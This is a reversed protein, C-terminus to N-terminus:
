KKFTNIANNIESEINDKVTEFDWVSLNMKLANKPSKLLEQVNGITKEKEDNSVYIPHKLDDGAERFLTYMESQNLFDKFEDVLQYLPKDLVRQIGNRPIGDFVTTKYHQLQQKLLVIYLKAFLEYDNIQNKEKEEIYDSITNFAEIDTENIPFPNKNGNGGFRWFIRNQAEKIKM